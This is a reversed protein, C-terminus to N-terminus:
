LAAPRANGRPIDRPSQSHRLYREGIRKTNRDRCQPIPRLVPHHHARLLRTSACEPSPIRLQAERAEGCRRTAASELGVVAGAGRRDERQCLRSVPEPPLKGFRHHRRQRVVGGANRGQAPRLFLHGRGLRPSGANALPWGTERRCHQSLSSGREAQPSRRTRRRRTRDRGKAMLPPLTPTFTRYPRIPAVGKKSGASRRTPGRSSCIHKPLGPVGFPPGAIV